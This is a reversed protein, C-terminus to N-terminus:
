SKLSLRLRNELNSLRFFRKVIKMAANSLPTLLLYLSVFKNQEIIIRPYARISRVILKRSNIRSDFYNLVAARYLANSMAMQQLKKPTEPNRNLYNEIVAIREKSMELGRSGISISKGHSRWTALAEPICKFEGFAVLKLWFDYDPVYRFNSDWGGIERAQSTRFVGGPGVLCNFRGVLEDLSFERVKIEELKIGNEDILAWDPYTVAIEPNADLIEQSKRFLEPSVLPDDSNVILSYRGLAQAIGSNIASAQGKNEQRVYRIENKFSELITPTSDTSGDDVVIYEFDFSSANKLVSKITEEIFDAGNFVPTIISFVPM